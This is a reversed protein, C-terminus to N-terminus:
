SNALETLKKVLEGITIPKKLFCTVENLSPFTSRFEKRYTDFATLFCVKVKPDKVKIKEYLEFGNLGPMRIDLLLLDYRGASFAALAKLPDNFTSVIFENRELGIRFIATIDEEDDVIMIRYKRVDRSLLRAEGTLDDRSRM